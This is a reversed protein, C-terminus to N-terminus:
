TKGDQGRFGRQIIVDTLLMVLPDESERYPKIIRALEEARGNLRKAAASVMDANMHRHPRGRITELIRAFNM